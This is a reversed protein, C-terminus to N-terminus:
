IPIYYLICGGYKADGGQAIVLRPKGVVFPYCTSGSTTATGTNDHEAERVNYFANANANTLTLLTRAVGSPTDQLTLTGDVGDALADHVGDNKVWEVGVLLGAIQTDANLTKAGGTETTGILKVDRLM